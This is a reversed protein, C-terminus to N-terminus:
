RWGGGFSGSINGVLALSKSGLTTAGGPSDSINAGLRRGVRKDSSRKVQIRFLSNAQRLTKIHSTCGKLMLIIIMPTRVRETSTSQNM